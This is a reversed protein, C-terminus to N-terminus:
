VILGDSLSVSEDSTIVLVAHNIHTDQIIMNQMFFQKGLRTVKITSKKEQFVIPLLDLLLTSWLVSVAEIVLIILKLYTKKPVPNRDDVNGTTVKVALICGEDNIILHLKVM